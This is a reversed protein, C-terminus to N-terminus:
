IELLCCYGTTKKIPVIKFIEATFNHITESDSLLALTGEIGGTVGLVVKLGELKADQIAM